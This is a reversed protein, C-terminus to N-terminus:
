RKKAVVRMHSSLMARQLFEQFAEKIQDNRRLVIDKLFKPAHIENINDELIHLDLSGPTSLELIEYNYEQLLAIIGEVSFINLHVPPVIGRFKENLLQLDIGSASTSTIFLLGNTKLAKTILDLASRPNYFRDFVEFATIVGCSENKLEGQISEIGNDRLFPNLEEFPKYSKKVKFKQGAVIGELFPIYKSYFDCFDGSPIDNMDATQLVWRIRPNFVHQIRSTTEQVLKSNWYKIGESRQFFEHLMERTPRPSLYISECRSCQRYIFNKRSFKVTSEESKCAPCFFFYTGADSNFIQLVDKEIMAVYHKFESQPRIEFEKFDDRIVISKMINEAISEYEM